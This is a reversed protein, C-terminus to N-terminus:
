FNIKGSLIVNRTFPAITNTIEDCVQNVVYTIDLIDNKEALLLYEDTNDMNMSWRQYMENDTSLIEFWIRTGNNIVKIRKITIQKTLIDDSTILQENLVFGSRTM